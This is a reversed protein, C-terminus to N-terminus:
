HSSDHTGDHGSCKPNQEQHFPDDAGQVSSLRPSVNLGPIQELDRGNSRMSTEEKLKLFFMSSWFDKALNMKILQILENLANNFLNPDALNSTTLIEQRCRHSINVEM